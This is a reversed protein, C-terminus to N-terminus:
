KKEVYVEKGKEVQAKGNYKVLVYPSSVPGFVEVVRGIETKDKLYVTENIEPIEEAEIVVNGSKTLHLIKGIRKLGM